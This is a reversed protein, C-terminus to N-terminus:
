KPKLFDYSNILLAEIEIEKWPLCKLGASPYDGVRYSVFLNPTEIKKGNLNINKITVM